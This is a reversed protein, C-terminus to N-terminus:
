ASEVGWDMGPAFEMFEMVAGDKEVFVVRLGPMAEFPGLLIECGAIEDEMCDCAFAIHPMWRVANTVPTDAEYRLFEIKQPHVMPDTVYVKTAAVYTEGPQVEDTPLGFHHLKRM